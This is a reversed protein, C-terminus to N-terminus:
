KKILKKFINEIKNTDFKKNISFSEILKENSPKNLYNFDKQKVLKPSNFVFHLKDLLTINDGKWNKDINPYKKIFNELKTIEKKTSKDDKKLLKLEDIYYKKSYNFNIDKKPFFTKLQKKFFKPLEYDNLLSNVFQSIDFFHRAHKNLEKLYDEYYWKIYLKNPIWAFGFDHLLIQFGLNPLYYKKNDVEYIWYGGPKIKQVLINGTHFDAHIMNFYRKITILGIMVQFLINFWVSDSHTNQAWSHFDGGNIWENYISLEKCNNYDWFYNLTFNPCINQYVLQNTLTTAILETFISNTLASKSMYEKYLDIVSGNLIDHSIDKIEMLSKLNIQKLISWKNHDNLFKIKYVIGEIGRKLEKKYFMEDTNEWKFRSGIRTKWNKNFITIFEIYTEKRKICTFDM